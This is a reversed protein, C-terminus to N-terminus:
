KQDIIRIVNEDLTSSEDIEDEDLISRHPEPREPEEVPEERVTSQLTKSHRYITLLKEPKHFNMDDPSM